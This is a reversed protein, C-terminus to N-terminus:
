GPVICEVNSLSRRIEADVKGFKLCSGLIFKRFNCDFTGWDQKESTILDINQCYMNLITRGWGSSEVENSQQLLYISEAITLVYSASRKEEDLTLYETYLKVSQNQRENSVVERQIEAIERNQFVTWGLSAFAIVLSGFTLWSSTKANQYLIKKNQLDKIELDLKWAEKDKKRQIEEVKNKWFWVLRTM